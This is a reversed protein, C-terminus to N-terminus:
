RGFREFVLMGGILLIAGFVLRVLLRAINAFASRRAGRAELDGIAFALGASMPMVQSLLYRPNVIAM